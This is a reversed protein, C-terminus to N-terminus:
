KRGWSKFPSNLFVSFMIDDGESTWDLQIGGNFIGDKSKRFWIPVQVGTEDNEFDRSLTVNIAYNQHIKRYSGFGIQKTIETPAGVAIDRCSSINDALSSCIEIESESQFSKEYRYGLEYLSNLSLMQGFYARAAFDTEKQSLDKSLDDKTTFTFTDYAITGEFGWYKVKKFSFNEAYWRELMVKDINTYNSAFFDSNCDNEIYTKSDVSAAYEQCLLLQQEYVREGDLMSSANPAPVPNHQWNVTLQAKGKLGSLDGLTVSDKGEDLPGTLKATVYSNGTDLLNFQVSVESGEEGILTAISGIDSTAGSLLTPIEISNLFDSVALSKGEVAPAPTAGFDIDVSTAFVLTTSMFTLITTKILLRKINM